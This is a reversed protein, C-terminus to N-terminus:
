APADFVGALRHDDGGVVPVGIGGARMRGVASGVLALDQRHEGFTHIVGVQDEVGAVHEFGQLGFAGGQQDLGSGALRDQMKCFRVRQSHGVVAPRKQYTRQDPQLVGGAVHHGDVPKQVAVLLRDFGRLAEPADAVFLGLPM